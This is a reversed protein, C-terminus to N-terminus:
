PVSKSFFKKELKSTHKLFYVTSVHIKAHLTPLYQCLNSITIPPHCLGQRTSYAKYTRRIEGTKAKPLKEALEQLNKISQTMDFSKGELARKQSELQSFSCMTCYAGSSPHCNLSSQFKGRNRGFFYGM